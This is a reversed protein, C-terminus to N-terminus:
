REPKPCTISPRRHAQLRECHRGRHAAPRLDAPETESPATLYVVVDPGKTAVRTQQYPQNTVGDLALAMTLTATAAVIAVVLLTAQAAHHRIDCAALRAVLFFRVM